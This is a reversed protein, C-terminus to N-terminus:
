DFLNIRPDPLTTCETTIRYTFYIYLCITSMTVKKELHEIKKNKNKNKNNNNNVLDRLTFLDYKMTERDCQRM